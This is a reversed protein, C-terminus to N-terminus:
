HNGHLGLDPRYPGPLRRALWALGMIPFSVAFGYYTSWGALALWSIADAPVVGDACQVGPPIRQIHGPALEHGNDSCWTATDAYRGPWNTTWFQQMTFAVTAVAFVILFRHRGRRGMAVLTLPAAALLSLYGVPLLWLAVDGPHETAAYPVCGIGGVVFATGALVWMWSRRMVLMALGSGAVALFLATWLVNDM